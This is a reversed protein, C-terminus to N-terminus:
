QKVTKSSSALSSGFISSWLSPAIWNFANGRMYKDSMQHLEQLAVKDHKAISKVLENKSGLSADKRELQECAHNVDFLTDIYKLQTHLMRETIVPHM